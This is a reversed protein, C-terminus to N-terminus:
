QRERETEVRLSLLLEFEETYYGIGLNGMIQGLRLDPHRVWYEGLEALVPGIREPDRM